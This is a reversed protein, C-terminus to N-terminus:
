ALAAHAPMSASLLGVENSVRVLDTHARMNELDLGAQLPLFTGQVVHVFM